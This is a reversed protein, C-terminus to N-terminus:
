NRSSNGVSCTAVHDNLGGAVLPCLHMRGWAEGTRAAWNVEPLHQTLQQVFRGDFGLFSEINALSIDASQFGLCRPQLVVKSSGRNRLAGIEWESVFRGIQLTELTTELSFTRHCFYISHCNLQNQHKGEGGKSSWEKDRKHSNKMELIDIQNKKLTEIEKTLVRKTWQNRNRPEDLQRETNRTNSSTKEPSCDQIGGNLDGLKWTRVCKNGPSKKMRTRLQRM